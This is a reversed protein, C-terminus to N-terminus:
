SSYAFCPLLLLLLLTRAEGSSTAKGRGGGNVDEVEEGGDEGRKRWGHRRGLSSGRGLQGRRDDLRIRPPRDPACNVLGSCGHGAGVSQAARLGLRYLNRGVRVAVLVHGVGLVLVHIAGGGVVLSLLVRLLLLLGHGIALLLLLGVLLAACM